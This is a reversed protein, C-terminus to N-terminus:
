DRITRRCLLPSRRRFKHSPLRGQETSLYDDDGWSERSPNAREEPSLSECSKDTTFDAAYWSFYMRRDKGSKGRAFLDFLPVGPRHYISAYSTIWQISDHRTPDLALAEMLDWTKYGHIEDYGCFVYVKGHSGKVDGAPLIELFGKGDKREILRQKIVLEDNLLPNLPKLWLTKPDRSEILKKALALDDNAQDLDNALVYCQNGSVSEWALLKYLAALVLDATKWNKKARGCLVLNYVSRGTADFSYLAETFIQRRYPEIVNLLPQGDVWRLLKFFQLPPTQKM